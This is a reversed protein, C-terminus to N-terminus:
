RGTLEQLAELRDSYESLMDYFVQRVTSEAQLQGIVQGAPYTALPASGARTIRAMAEKVILSQLPMPLTPPAGAASWGQTWASKLVRSNKGSYSTSIVTDSSRAALIRAKVNSPADSQATTLWVTGCWVGAAGLAMAALMQRGTAIGGAALVPVPAVLDVIQPTLVMTAISGTHGGAETGQAVILDVGADRQRLAQEPSGVLAALKMGAARARSVIEPPPVGLASVLLAIPHRFAVDLIRAHQAPTITFRELTTRRIDESDAPDLPPVGHEALLRDVFALHGDPLLSGASQGPQLRVTEYTTPMLLDLGYPRGDVHRDIWDLEIELEEATFGATGLVGMGGARSAEAVVDRCHSFAFIPADLGFMDSAATRM